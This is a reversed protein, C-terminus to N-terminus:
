HDNSDVNGNDAGRGGRVGFGANGLENDGEYIYLRYAGGPMGDGNASKLKFAMRGSSQGGCCAIKGFVFDEGNLQLVYKLDTGPGLDTFDVIAWVGSNDRNFYVRQGIPQADDTAGRAFVIAAVGNGPAALLKDQATPAFSAVAAIILAGVLLRRFM